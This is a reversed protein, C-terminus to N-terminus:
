VAIHDLFVTHLLLLYLSSAQDGGAVSSWDIGGMSGM